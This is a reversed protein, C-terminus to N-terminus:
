SCRVMLVMRASLSFNSIKIETPFFFDPFDLLCGDYTVCSVEIMRFCFVLILIVVPTQGFHLQSLPFTGGRGQQHRPSTILVGEAMVVEHPSESNSM